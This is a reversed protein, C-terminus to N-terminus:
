RDRLGCEGSKKHAKKTMRGDGLAFLAIEHKRWADM